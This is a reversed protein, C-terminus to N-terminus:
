GEDRALAPHYYTAAIALLAAFVLVGPAMLPNAGKFAAWVLDSTAANPRIERAFEFNNLLHLGIGVMGGLALPVMAVRLAILTARQPRLLAAGVAILGAGCLVFPAIQLAEGTHDELWLEALAALLVLATMVLLFQRLRSLLAVSTM